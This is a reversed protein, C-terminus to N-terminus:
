VSRFYERVTGTLTVSGSAATATLTLTNGSVMQPLETAMLDVANILDNGNSDSVSVGGANNDVKITGTFASVNLKLVDAGNCKVTITTANNCVLNLVYDAGIQNSLTMGAAYARETYWPSLLAFSIPVIRHTPSDGDERTVFKILANAKYESAGPAYVIRIRQASMLWDVLAKYKADRDTIGKIALNGAVSNQEETDTATETFFGKGCNAFQLANSFGLGNVDYLWIKNEGNLNVREGNENELYFRRM